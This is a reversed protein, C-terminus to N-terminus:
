KQTATSDEVLFGLEAMAEAVKQLAGGKVIVAAPGLPEGLFRAARSQRLQKLIEPRGVRLVVQAELRAEVGKAEWRKIAKVLSAPAGAEAHKALLGLLQEVKLGQKVARALSPPTIRYRYDEPREEGWECFRAVQYRVVRPVLRSAAIRGQSSVHLRGRETEPFSASRPGAEAIRFATPPAGETPGALDVMGLRHAVRAIFFRILAGDVRDWTEFGRLYEGTSVDKIFWSDYDGAPRQFDPYRTKMDAVFADLSWWTRAPVADLLGLLFRRTQLPQNGWKGECIVDPMLRLENFTESKRWADTLLLLAERRPLELFVKVKEAQVAQDRLLGVEQVLRQLVPDSDRQLGM